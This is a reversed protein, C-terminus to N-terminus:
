QVDPLTLTLGDLEQTVNIQCSLRSNSRVDAAYELMAAESESPSGTAEQWATDVYVHCTACAGAGGCDGFIGPIGNQTAAEMVSLGPRADLAYETSDRSIFVIRAM